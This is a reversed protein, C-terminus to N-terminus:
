KKLAKEGMLMESLFMNLSRIMIKKLPIYDNIETKHTDNNENIQIRCDGYLIYHQTSNKNTIGGGEGKGAWKELTFIHKIYKIDNQLNDKTGRYYIEEKINHSLPQWLYNSIHEFHIINKMM